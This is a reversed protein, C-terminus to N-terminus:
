REFFDGKAFLNNGKRISRLAISQAESIIATATYEPLRKEVVDKLANYKIKYIDM